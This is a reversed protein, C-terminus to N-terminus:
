DKWGFIEKANCDFGPATGLMSTLMVKGTMIIRLSKLSVALTM